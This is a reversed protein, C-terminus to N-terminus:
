GRRRRPFADCREGSLRVSRRDPRQVQASPLVGSDRRQGQPAAPRRPDLHLFRQHRGPRHLAVPQRLPQLLNQPIQRRRACESARVHDRSAGVAAPKFCMQDSGSRREASAVDDASGAGASPDGRRPHCLPRVPLLRVSRSPRTDHNDHSQVGFLHTIFRACDRRRSSERTLSLRAPSPSLPMSPIARPKAPMSCHDMRRCRRAHAECCTRTAVLRSVLYSITWDSWRPLRPSNIGDVWRNRM